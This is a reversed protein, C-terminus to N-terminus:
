WNITKFVPSHNGTQSPKVEEILTSILENKENKRLFKKAQGKLRQLVNEIQATKYCWSKTTWPPLRYAIKIAETEM